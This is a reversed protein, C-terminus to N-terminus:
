GRICTVFFLVLALVFYLRRPWLPRFFPVRRDAWPPLDSQAGHDMEVDAWGDEMRWREMM